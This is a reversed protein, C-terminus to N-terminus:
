SVSGIFTLGFGEEPNIDSMNKFHFIKKIQNLNVNDNLIKFYYVSGAPVAKFMPKPKNNAMDWGGIRIPKGIACAILKLKVGEIEGEFNNEDIWSPIWGKKFIAPTALYLKFVDKFEFNIDIINRLPDTNIKEFSVTKSEAGLQFVEKDSIEEIGEVKVILSIRKDKHKLRIMPIRYLHGERSTLTARDRAIGIKLEEQFISKSETYSFEKDKGELYEKFYIDKLWGKPEDAKKQSKFILLKEKILDDSYFVNPKNIFSLLHLKEDEKQEVLDLPPSFYITETEDYLFLGYIKITGKDHPTGIDKDKYKGELFDKLTGRQFILFTRIAGLVTSPYPPFVFDAWTEDGMSFPRGSRFFLTDNTTIKLWIDM